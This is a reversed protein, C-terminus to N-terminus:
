QLVKVTEIAWLAAERAQPLQQDALFHVIPPSAYVSINQSFSNDGNDVEFVFERLMSVVEHRTAIQSREKVMGFCCLGTEYAQLATAWNEEPFFHIYSGHLDDATIWGTRVPRRHRANLPYYDLKTTGFSTTIDGNHEVAQVEVGPVGGTRDYSATGDAAVTVVCAPGGAPCSVVM